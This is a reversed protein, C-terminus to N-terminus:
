AYAQGNDFAQLADISADIRRIRSLLEDPPM